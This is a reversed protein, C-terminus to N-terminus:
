AVQALDRLQGKGWCFPVRLRREPRGPALHGAVSGRWRRGGDGFHRDPVYELTSKSTSVMGDGSGRQTRQPFPEQSHTRDFPRQGARTSKDRLRPATLPQRTTPHTPPTTPTPPAMPQPPHQPHTKGHRRRGRPRRQQHRRHQHPLRRHIPSPPSAHRAIRPLLRELHSLHKHTRTTPLSTSPCVPDSPSPPTPTDCTTSGSEPCGSTPASSCSGNPYTTPASQCSAPSQWIM